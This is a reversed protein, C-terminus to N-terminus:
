IYKEQLVKIHHLEHGAIIYLIENVSLETKSAVGTRQLVKPSFSKFLALNSQRILLFESTIDALTRTNFDAANIYDDQEFPALPTNDNRAFRLARYAFIRETDCMHGVLEKITWKAPAYRFNGKEERINSLLENTTKGQKVLASIIDEGQVLNIYKNFYEKGIAAPTTNM